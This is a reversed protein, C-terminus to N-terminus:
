LIFEANDRGTDREASNIEEQGIVGSTGSGGAINSEESSSSNM